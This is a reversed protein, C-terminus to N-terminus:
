TGAIAAVPQNKAVSSPVPLARADGLAYVAGNSGALWYGHGSPTLALGVIDSVHIGEGPLSGSFTAGNGFVFTGGDAGVLVYGGNTPSPVIARIDNVHIGLGPLSGVFHTNGFAFVGGDAGVMWYGLGNSTAVMGVIDNVAKGIAPLSGVFHADGFAFIGGDSGVLWYGGGDATPAVAVINSVSVGLSPLDGLWHADGRATVSGDRGVLWYGEGAPSAAMGVISSTASATTGALRPANGTAAVNGDSSAVWYGQDPASIVRTGWNALYDRKDNPTYETAMYINGNYAQAASYDGWRCSNPSTQTFPAYCSFDDEPNAGAGAIHVVDGAGHTGDFSVYAASPYTHTGAVTFTMFGNGSSDVGIAPYLLNETTEVYGNAANKVSISSSGATPKLVFWAAGANEQQGQKFGTNLETYLVGSAYTTQETANFDTDLPANLAACPVGFDLCPGTTGYPMPGVKQVAQPPIATYAESGVPTMVLTPDESHNLASTGLLAFTELGSTVITPDGPLSGNSEVFYETNPAASGQTVSSPSLHYAAFPDALTDIGYREVSPLNGGDAASLLESKSMAYIVTGNYGGTQSSGCANSSNYCFENTTVYVGSHDMGVQDYDGFCPCDDGVHGGPGPQAATSNSGDSTDFWFVDYTGLPNTTQSVAFYQAALCGNQPSGGNNCGAPGTVSGGPQGYVFMALIWRGTAPDWEVRPDSLASGAPLGLAQFASIPPLLVKGSPSYIALADNVFEVVATGQPSGGVGLGQDPPSVPGFGGLYVSNLSGNTLANIGDFSTAGADNGAIGALAGATPMSPAASLAQASVRRHLLGLPALRHALSNGAAPRAANAGAVKSLNVTGARHLAESFLAGPGCETGATCTISGSHRPAAGAVGASGGIALLASTCFGGVLLAGTAARAARRRVGPQGGRRLKELFSTEV